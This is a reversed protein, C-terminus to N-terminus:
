ALHLMQCRRLIDDAAQTYRGSPEHLVLGPLVSDRVSRGKFGQIIIIKAPLEPRPWLPFLRVAGISHTGMASLAASISGAPVILTMSGRPKLLRALAGIWGALLGPAAMHALARAKDPSNTGAQEHWPPNACVHDGPPIDTLSLIDANLVSLQAFNNLDFNLEALAALDVDLEIGVGKVGPVRAALCLLAAGAGIGAEIVREGARAPVAAALMVPEIGSRHGKAFQRYHVRGDLLFGETTDSV